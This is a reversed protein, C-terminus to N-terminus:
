ARAHDYRSATGLFLRTFENSLAAKAPNKKVFKIYRLSASENKHLCLDRVMELANGGGVGARIAIDAVNTAFTCRTQHFKFDRLILGHAPGLRKFRMIEVNISPSKDTERQAYPRGFRTLFVLNKHEPAAVAERKLRRASYCYTRLQELLVTPIVPQGTVGFKTAVPPRAGPGVALRHLGEASPDRVANMLTEVKLDCLTGLRMGTFFGSELLYSLEISAHQRALALIAAQDHASVPTLGDELPENNRTRNPISLDTSQVMMTRAFGAGDILRIGVMREQWMPWDPSLLGTHQLWRYFKVAVRMRNSVTSPKLERAKRARLLEGRYRVLVRDKALAPFDWWNLQKEELWKAYGLLSTGDTQITRIDTAASRDLFWLNAERWPSGDAWCLQPISPVASLDAPTRWRVEGDVVDCSHRSLRISELSAM